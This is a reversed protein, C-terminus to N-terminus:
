LDSLLSRDNAILPLLLSIEADRRQILQRGEIVLDAGTTLLEALTDLRDKDRQCTAPDGASESRGSTVYNAITNRMSNAGLADALRATELAAIKQTYANVIEQQTSSHAFQKAGVKESDKRSTDATDARLKEAKAALTSVEVRATDRQHSNHCGNLLAGALLTALAWKPLMMDIFGLAANM